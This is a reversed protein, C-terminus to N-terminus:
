KKKLIFKNVQVFNPTSVFFQNCHNHCKLHYWCKAFKPYLLPYKIIPLLTSLLWSFMDYIPHTNLYSPTQYVTLNTFVLLNWQVLTAGPTHDVPSPHYRLSLSAPTNRSNHSPVIDRSHQSLISPLCTANRSNHSPIVSSCSFDKLQPESQRTNNTHTHSNHSTRILRSLNGEETNLRLTQYDQSTVHNTNPVGGLMVSHPEYCIEWMQEVLQPKYTHCPM